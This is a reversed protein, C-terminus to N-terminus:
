GASALESRVLELDSAKDVDVSIEVYPTPVAVVRQGVLSSVKQELEHVTLAHFVFRLIFSLGLLRILGFPSKRASTVKRLLERNQLAVQRDFLFLNGGTFRGERLTMYTRDVQPYREKIMSKAVIPYYIAASTEGCRAIFDDVAHSTLM